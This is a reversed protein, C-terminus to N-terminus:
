KSLIGKIIETTILYTSKVGDLGLSGSALTAGSVLPNDSAYYAYRLIMDPRVSKRIKSAAQIAKQYHAGEMELGVVGWSSQKFYRLIDKNQLSTGLVTIMPGACVGLGKGEFQEAKLSNEFPYNDASGEFIHADPIMLDGKGGILIGAKGMINVSHINIPYKEDAKKYPKLLEDMTEYAQQGFAYDMVIIVDDSQLNHLSKDLYSLKTIDIKSLDFIQVSINTGSPDHIEYMGNKLAHKRVTERLKKNTSNSLLEALEDIPDNKHTKILAAEAFLSNMVSHLNSSIVHINKDFIGKNKLSAKIRQAWGEGYYHSGLQERLASSFSIQRDNDELFEEISRKGLWYVIQFLSNVKESNAFKTFAEETEDFTRGLLTSLYTLGVELKAKDKTGTKVIQELMRWPRTFRGKGDLANERIKEAEVYMFTLHTMVDYIDSLGRTMEIFFQEEDILYCNRRRKSPIRAEFTSDEFGERTILKIYRAQEIGQPLRQFIYLLGSLEVREKDRISGYIEPSLDLLASIMSEGSMGLPKYTGRMFLHRMAIHLREISHRSIQARSLGQTPKSM